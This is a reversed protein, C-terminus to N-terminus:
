ADPPIRNSAILLDACEMDEQPEEEEIIINILDTGDEEPLPPAEHQGVGLNSIEYTIWSNTENVEPNMM